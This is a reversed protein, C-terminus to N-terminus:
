KTTPAPQQVPQTPTIPAPTTQAPTNAVPTQASPAASEPKKQTLTKSNGGGEAIKNLEMQVFLPVLFGVFLWVIIWLVMNNDKKVNETFGKIYMIAWYINVIPIILLWATPVRAGLSNFENKTKVTWVLGYIGFTIISFFYVLFINRHKVM